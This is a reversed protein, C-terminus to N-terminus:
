RTVRWNLTVSGPTISGSTNNCVKFNVNNATPYKVITLMGSSSPSYGTTSTPDANFDAMINDTTAVGSASVTVVTACTASSISTTGLAATGSAITQTCPNGNCQIVGTGKSVLNLNINTDSGVASASVTAPNATAANTIKLNDVASATAATTIEANGNSDVLGIADLTTASSSGGVTLTSHPSTITDGSGGTTCPGGADILQITGASSSFEVCHNNTVSGTVAGAIADGGNSEIHTNKNTSDYGITNSATATFGASGPIKLEMSSFDQLGGGSYTNAQNNLVAAAPLRAANLTGSSINSANTTDTTASNAFATGNTKTVTLAGTATNLTGDGSVTFGGFAGTNNFQIQGSSGGPTGGSGPPGQPGEQGNNIYCTGGSLTNNLTIAVANASTAQINIATAASSNSGVLYGSADFCWVMPSTTNLNHTCTFPTNAVASTMSCAYPASGGGSGGATCNQANGHVDVGLPYNGASCQSPASALATTTAANGTTNANITAPLRAANLTGSSINSANTTDATASPAFNVGNTKTVTLVGTATNLTGDGGVTLGAFSGANNWEVQGSVGGPGGNGGGGGGGGGPMEVWWLPSVAPTNNLNNPQLSIWSAGAYFVLDQSNYTASGTWAGAYHVKNLYLWATSVSVQNPMDTPSAGNIVAQSFAQGALLLALAVIRRM